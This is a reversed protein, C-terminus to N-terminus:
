LMNIFESVQIDEEINIMTRTFTYVSNPLTKDKRVKIAKWEKDKIYECEVITNESIIENELEYLHVKQRKEALKGGNQLFVKNKNVCFDITNMYRPKWKFMTNHTSIQVPPKVPMFIYGDVDTQDESVINKMEGFKVFEKKIVEVEEPLRKITKLFLDVNALREKFSNTNVAKGGFLVCDFIYLKKGVLECDFICGEYAVKSLKASILFIEGNRNMLFVIPKDKYMLSGLCYREGDNKVGVVYESEKLHKFHRREISVPQPGPYAEHAKCGWMSNMKRVIAFGDNLKKVQIGNIERLDGEM